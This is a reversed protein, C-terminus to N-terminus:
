IKWFWRPVKKKYQSFKEGHLEKLRPEELIRIVINFIFFVTIFYYLLALSDNVLTLGLIIGLAGLYMPNRTFKYIGKDVLEKPEDGVLFKLPKLLWIAPTGKGHLFFAAISSLFFIGGIVLFIYGANGWDGIGLPEHYRVMIWYPMYMIVFGPVLILFAIFRLTHLLQKMRTLIRM